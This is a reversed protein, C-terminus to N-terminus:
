YNKNVEQIQDIANTYNEQLEEDSLQVLEIM